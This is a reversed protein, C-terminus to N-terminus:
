EGGRPSLHPSPCVGVGGLAAAVVGAFAVGRWGFYRYGLVIALVPAVVVTTRSTAVFAINALFRAALCLLAAITPWRTERWRECAAGILGFACILFIGSQLIYDKVPVGYAKTHAGFLP